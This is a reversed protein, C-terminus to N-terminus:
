RRVPLTGERIRSGRPTKRPLRGRQCHSDSGHLWPHRGASFCPVRYLLARDMCASARYRDQQPNHRDYLCRLRRTMSWVAGRATLKKSWVAGLGVVTWGSAVAGAAFWSIVRLVALDMYALAMAVISVALMIIRSIRLQQKDSKFEYPVIDSTASFACLSLFTSASSLGASMVGTLMIVGVITPVVSMSIVIMVDESPTINPDLINMSVGMIYLLTM